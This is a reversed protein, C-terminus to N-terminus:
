GAVMVVEAVVNGCKGALMVVTQKRWRVGDDFDLLKKETSPLRNSPLANEKPESKM